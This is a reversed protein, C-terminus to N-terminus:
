AGNSVVEENFKEFEEIMAEKNEELAIKMKDMCQCFVIFEAETLSERMYSDFKNFIRQMSEMVSYTREAFVISKLRADYEVNERTIWKNKELNKLASTASSGKIGFEREIDKQFTPKGQQIRRGIFTLIRIQSQTLNIKWLQDKNMNQLQLFLQNIMNSISKEM